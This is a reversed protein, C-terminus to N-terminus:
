IAASLPARDVEYLLRVAGSPYTTTGGLRLTAATGPEFLRIGAGLLLPMVFLELSDVADLELFTAITRGGGLVWVDGGSGARLERVLAAADSAGRAEHPLEPDRRASLVITRKGGYPWAGFGLVQEFTTRGMVITQIGAAFAQYGYDQGEFPELWAVGGDPTAIFGDLSTAIYVRFRAGPM